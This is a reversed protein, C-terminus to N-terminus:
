NEIKQCANKWITWSRRESYGICRSVGYMPTGEIAYKIFVKTETANLPEILSMLENRIADLQQDIDSVKDTNGLFTEKERQDQLNKRQDILERIM